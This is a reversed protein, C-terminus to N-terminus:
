ELNGKRSFTPSARKKKVITLAFFRLLLPPLVLIVIQFGLPIQAWLGPLGDAALVTSNKGIAGLEFPDDWTKDTIRGVLIDRGNTSSASCTSLLVIRDGTTVQIDRTYIAKQLLKDLYAQRAKQGAIKTRFVTSDYADAHVFAFFELGHEQGSYYLMGYKRAEFYAKDAFYGIEGFMASKEMHHGYLISPFGSFARDSHSDLFIAGSLSYLGEANTNAYKMNDPGQVVPYDIHTGYVALWGFVDPNMERLEEFSHGKAEAGPKYIEYRAADAAQYVQKSDWMAYCGAVVLVLIAILVVTDVIDNIRRITKKATGAAVRMPIGGKLFPQTKRGKSYRRQKQADKATLM